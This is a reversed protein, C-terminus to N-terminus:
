LALAYIARAHEWTVPRPNNNLLRTQLMADTALQDLAAEDIGVECLTRAIGTDIIPQELWAILAPAMEEQLGSCGPLMNDALEAHLGSASALNFPIRLALRTIVWL